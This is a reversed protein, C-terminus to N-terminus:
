NIEAFPHPIPQTGPVSTMIESIPLRIIGMRQLVKLRYPEPEQYFIIPKKTECAYKLDDMTTEGLYGYKRNILIPDVVFVIDSMDCRLQWMEILMKTEDPTCQRQIAHCYTGLPLVINGQITLTDMLELHLAQFTTSGAMCVIPYRGHGEKWINKPTM